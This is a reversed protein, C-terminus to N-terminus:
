SPRDMGLCGKRWEEVRGVLGLDKLYSTNIQSPLIIDPDPHSEHDLINAVHVATTPSFTHVRQRWPCHHLAVAETITKPL